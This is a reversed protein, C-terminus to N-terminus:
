TMFPSESNANSIQSFSNPDRSLAMHDFLIHFYGRCGDSTQNFLFLYHTHHVISWNKTRKLCNIVRDTVGAVALM